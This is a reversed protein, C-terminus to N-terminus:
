GDLGEGVWRGRDVRRKNEIMLLKKHNTEREGERRKRGEWINM